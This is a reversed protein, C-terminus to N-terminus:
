APEGEGAAELAATLDKAITAKAETDKEVFDLTLNRAAGEFTRKDLKLCNAGAPNERAWALADPESYKLVTEERIKIGPAPQKSKTEEFRQVALLRLVHEMAKLDESSTTLADRVDATAMAHAHDVEDLRMKVQAVEERKRAVLHVQTELTTTGLSRVRDNRDLEEEVATTPVSLPETM